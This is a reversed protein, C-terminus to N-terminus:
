INNKANEEAIMRRMEAIEEDTPMSGGGGSEEDTEWPFKLLDIPGNIGHKKLDVPAVSLLHYTQWRTASWLHRARRNYGRIICRIEWWKMEYMFEHRNYGIEGM